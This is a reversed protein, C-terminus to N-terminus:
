ANLSDFTCLQGIGLKVVCQNRTAQCSARRGRRARARPGRRREDRGADREHEARHGREADGAEAEEPALRDREQEDQRDRQGPDDGAHREVREEDGSVDVEREPRDHDAVRGEADDDDVVVDSARSRREDGDSISADCSRPASPQCVNRKTTQGTREVASTAPPRSAKASENSSTMTVFKVAPACFM